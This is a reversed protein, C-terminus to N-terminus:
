GYTDVFASRNEEPTALLAKKARELQVPCHFRSRHAVLPCRSPAAVHPRHAPLTLGLARVTSHMERPSETQKIAEAPSVNTGTLLLMSLIFRMAQRLTDLNRGTKWSRRNRQPKPVEDGSVGEWEAEDEEGVFDRFMDDSVDSAADDDRPLTGSQM